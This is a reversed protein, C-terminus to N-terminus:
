FVLDGGYDFPLQVPSNKLRVHGTLRYRLKDPLGKRLSLLEGLVDAVTGVGEVEVFQTGYAPVTVPQNAVGSAFPRGNVFLRFDLGEVPLDFPNPNQVRLKLQYKQEFLTVDVLKLGSVTLRPPEATALFGACAGLLFLVAAGLGRWAGLSM